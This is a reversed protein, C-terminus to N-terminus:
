FLNSAERVKQLLANLDHSDKYGAVNLIFRGEKLIASGSLFLSEESVILMAL